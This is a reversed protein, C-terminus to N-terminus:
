DISAIGNCGSLDLTTLVKLSPLLQIILEVGRDDLGNDACIDCHEYYCRCSYMGALTLCNPTVWVNICCVFLHERM